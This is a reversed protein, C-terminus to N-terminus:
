VSGNEENNTEEVVPAKIESTSAELIEFIGDRKTVLFYMSKDMQSTSIKSGEKYTWTCKVLYLDKYERTVEETETTEKDTITDVVTYTYNQKTVSKVDVSEVEILNEAGYDNIYNSLYKYFGDRAETYVAKRQPQYVYYLGGVDYQSVKNTWTYFDAVYNKCILGAITQDDSPQIGEEEDGEVAVKLEKFYEKQIDTANDRIVYGMGEVINEPKHEVNGTATNLLSKADKYIVYGFAGIAIFIPLIFLLVMLYRTKKNALLHYLKGKKKEKKPKLRIEKNKNMKKVLM